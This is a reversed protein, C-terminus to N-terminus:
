LTHPPPPSPLIANVKLMKIWSICITFPIITLLWHVWPINSTLYDYFYPGPQSPPSPSPTHTRYIIRIKVRRLPARQNHSVHPSWRILCTLSFPLRCVDRGPSNGWGQGESLFWVSIQLAEVYGAGLVALMKLCLLLWFSPLSLPHPSAFLLFLPVAVSFLKGKAKLADPNPDASLVRHSSEGDRRCTLPCTHFSCM